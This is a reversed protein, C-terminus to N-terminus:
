TAALQFRYQPWNVLQCIIRFSIASSGICLKLLISEYLTKQKVKLDKSVVHHVFNTSLFFNSILIREIHISFIMSIPEYMPEDYQKLYLKVTLLWQTNILQCIFEHLIKTHTLSM